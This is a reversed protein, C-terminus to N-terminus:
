SEDNFEMEEKGILKTISEFLAEDTANLTETIITPLGRSERETKIGDFLLKIANAPKMEEPHAILYDMAMTQADTGLKAHRELMEVKEAVVKNDMEQTVIEDLKIARSQFDDKIWQSLVSTSPVNGDFDPEIYGKLTNGACKGRKYWTYFVADKYDQTYRGTRVTKPDLLDLIVEENEM